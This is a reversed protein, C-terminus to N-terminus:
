YYMILYCNSLCVEGGTQFKWNIKGSSPDVFYINGKYCGVV